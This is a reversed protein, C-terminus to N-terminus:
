KAFPFMLLKLKLIGWKKKSEDRMQKDKFNSLDLWSNLPEEKLNQMIDLGNFKLVMGDTDLYVMECKKGFHPKLVEYFFSYMYVKSFELIHWAVYSPTTMNVSKKFFSMILTEDGVEFCDKLFPDFVLKEFKKKTSVLKIDTEVKTPDTLTKGYLANNSLKCMKNSAKSKTEYRYRVNADIFSKFCVKQRFRFIKHVKTVVVGNGGNLRLYLQLRQLSILKNIQPLHCAVLTENNGLKYNLKAMRDKTLSSLDEMEINKKMIGLPLEDSFRALEPPIYYDCLISYCFEGDTEHERINKWFITIETKNLEYFEGVPLLLSMIYAYLSNVDIYICSSIEGNITKILLNWLKNIKESKCGEEIHKQVYNRLTPNNFSNKTQVVSTLGGLVNKKYLKCVYPDTLLEFKVNGHLLAAQMSFSPSTVFFNIDLKHKAFMDNRLHQFVQALLLVDSRLYLLMYDRINNCNALKFLNLAFNYDEDSIEEGRLQSFFADKPPLQTEDLKEACTVYEYCFVGKKTCMEVVEPTYRKDIKKMTSTLIDFKFGDNKYDLAWQALSTAMHNCSDKFSLGNCANNRWSDKGNKERSNPPDIKIELFKQESKLLFTANYDKPIDRVIFNNDYKSSNHGWCVLRTRKNTIKINCDFCACGM